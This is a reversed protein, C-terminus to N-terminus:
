DNYARSPRNRSSLNVLPAVDTGIGEGIADVFDANFDSLPAVMLPGSGAPIALRIEGMLFAVTTNLLSSVDRNTNPLKTSVALNIACDDTKSVTVSVEQGGRGLGKGTIAMSVCVTNRGDLLNSDVKLLTDELVQTNLTHAHYYPLSWSTGAPKTRTNKTRVQILGGVAYDFELAGDFNVYKPKSLTELDNALLATMYQALMKRWVWINEKINLSTYATTLVTSAM